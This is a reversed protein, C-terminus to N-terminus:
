WRGIRGLWRGIRGLWQGQEPVQERLQGPQQKKIRLWTVDAYKLSQNYVTKFENGNPMLLAKSVEPEGM